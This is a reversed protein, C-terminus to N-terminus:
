FLSDLIGHFSSLKELTKSSQFLESWEFIFFSGMESFSKRQELPSVVKAARMALILKEYHFSKLSLNFSNKEKIFGV